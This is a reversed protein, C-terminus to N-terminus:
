GDRLSELGGEPQLRAVRGASKRPSGAVPNRGFIRRGTARLFSSPLPRPSQQREVPAVGGRKGCSLADEGVDTGAIVPVSLPPPM